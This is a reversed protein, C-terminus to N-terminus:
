SRDKRDNLLRVLRVWRPHEEQVQSMLQKDPLCMLTRSVRESRELQGSVQPRTPHENRSFMEISDARHRSM